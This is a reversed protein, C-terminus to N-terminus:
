GSIQLITSSFAFCLGEYVIPSCSWAGLPRKTLVPWSDWGCCCSSGRIYIVEGQKGHLISEYIRVAPSFLFFL